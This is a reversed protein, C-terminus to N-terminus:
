NHKLVWGINESHGEGAWQGGYGWSAQDSRSFAGGTTLGNWDFEFGMAVANSRHAVAKYDDYRHHLTDSTDYDFWLVRGKQEGRHGGRGLLAEGFRQKGRIMEAQLEGYFDPGLQSLLFR